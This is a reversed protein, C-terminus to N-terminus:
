SLMSLFMSACAENDRLVCVGNCKHILTKAFLCSPQARGMETISFGSLGQFASSIQRSWPVVCTLALAPRTLAINVCTVCTKECLYINGERCVRKALVLEVALSPFVM